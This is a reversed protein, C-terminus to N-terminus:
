SRASHWAASREALACRLVNEASFGHGSAGPNAIHLVTSSLADILVPRRQDGSPRGTRYDIAQGQLDTGTEGVTAGGRIGKGALIWSTEPWHDKGGSASYQPARGFESGIVLTTQEFLSGHANHTSKLADIFRALDDLAPVLRRRQLALHEHHADLHLSRTSVTVAKAFNGQLAHLALRLQPGLVADRYPSAPEATRLLRALPDEPGQERSRLWPEVKATRGRPDFLAQALPLSVGASAPGADSEFDEPTQGLALHPIPADGPLAAGLLEGLWPEHASAKVRGRQATREGVPHLETDTRVGHILCLAADHRLLDGVLPGFMRHTGQRREDARYGPEIRGRTLAADKPDVTLVGDLGGWLFVSVVYQRPSSGLSGNWASAQGPLLSGATGALAAGLLSRRTFRSM